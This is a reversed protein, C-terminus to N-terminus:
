SKSIGYLYFSSGSVFSAGATVSATISTIAQTQNQLNAFIETYAETINNEQVAFTSFPKIVTNTYNPIYIEQSSFTTALSTPGNILGIVQLSGGTARATYVSVGDGQLQTNSATNTGNFAIRLGSASAGSQSSRASVNLILDTYTSPIASFTVTATTSSLTNSSILTYTSPM